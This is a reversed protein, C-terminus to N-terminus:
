EEESEDSDEEDDSDPDWEQVKAKAKPNNAQTGQLAGILKKILDATEDKAKAPKCEPAKPKHVPAKNPKSLAALLQQVSDSAYKEKKIASVKQQKISELKARIASMPKSGAVSKSKSGGYSKGNQIQALEKATKNKLFEKTYMGPNYDNIRNRWQTATLGQFTTMGFIPPQHIQRVQHM